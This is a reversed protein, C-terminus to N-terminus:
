TEHCSHNVPQLMCSGEVGHWARTMGGTCLLTSFSMPLYRSVPFIVPMCAHLSVSRLGKTCGGEGVKALIQWRVRWAGEGCRAGGSGGKWGGTSFGM